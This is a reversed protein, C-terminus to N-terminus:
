QVYKVIDSLISWKEMQLYGLKLKEEKINQLLLQKEEEDLEM